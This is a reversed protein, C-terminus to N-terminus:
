DALNLCCRFGNEYSRWGTPHYSLIATCSAKKQAWSGQHYSPTWFFGAWAYPRTKKGQRDKVGAEIREELTKDAYAAKMVIEAANGSMDYVGEATVCGERTGSPETGDLKNVMEKMKPYQSKYLKSTNATPYDPNLSSEEPDTTFLAYMVDWNLGYKPPTDYNCPAKPKRTPLAAKSSWEAKSKARSYHSGMVYEPGYGYLNAGKPGLCARVWEDRSCLRKGSKQCYWEAEFETVGVFPKTGRQNPAEYRDMCFSPPNSISGTGAKQVPVYEGSHAIPVMDVPCKGQAVLNGAPDKALEGPKGIGPKTVTSIEGTGIDIVPVEVLGTIRATAEVRAREKNLDTFANVTSIQTIDLAKPSLLEPNVTRAILAASFVLLMGIIADKMVVKGKMVDEKGKIQLLYLFAGYIFVITAVIAAISIGYRYVSFIYSSMLDSAKDPIVFGPIDVNLQRLLPGSGSQPADSTKQTSPVVAEGVQSLASSPDTKCIGGKSVIRCQSESLKAQECSWGSELNANQPLTSCDNLNQLRSADIKLCTTDTEDPATCKCCVDAARVSLPLLLILSTLLGFVILPLPHHWRM